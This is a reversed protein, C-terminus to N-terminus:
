EPKLRKELAALGAPSGVEYFRDHVEYGALLGATSLASYVDALDAVTSPPIRDAIMSRQLWSLGYDIYHMAPDDVGKQYRSVKGDAFIVNSADFAGDNRFVTMLAPCAHQTFAEYIPDVDIPLYSDGYLVAFEDTLLGADLALRLAGATGRLDNGEDAWRIHLGWRAGDGVFERIENGRHGISYVVDSFGQRALLALQHDAFPRGAVPLLAKPVALTQPYMRTGLGGALVVCQM